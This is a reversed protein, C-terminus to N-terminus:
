RYSTKSRRIKVNTFENMELFANLMIKPTVNKPGLIVETIPNTNIHQLKFERYPVLRDDVPRFMFDHKKAGLFSFLRWEQEEYFGRKKLFYLKTMLTILEITMQGYASTIKVYDSTKKPNGSCLAGAEINQKIRTYYPKIAENQEPKKYIVRDLILSTDDENKISKVLQEFYEASFGICFGKGDDAYGRWQSLLDREESLCFGIGDTANAYKSFTKILKVKIDNELGDDDCISELRKSVLKGEKSDNSLSLSSLRISRNTIISHLTSTSCYHYLTKM